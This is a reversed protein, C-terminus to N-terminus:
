GLSHQNDVKPTSCGPTGTIHHPWMLSRNGVASPQITLRIGLTVLNCRTCCFYHVPTMYTFDSVQAWTSREMSHSRGRRRKMMICTTLRMRRAACPELEEDARMATDIRRRSAESHDRSLGTQAAICVPCRVTGLSRNMRICGVLFLLQLFLILHSSILLCWQILNVAVHPDADGGSPAWPFGHATWRLGPDRREAKLLRRFLGRM